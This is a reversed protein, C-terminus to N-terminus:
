ILLPMIILSHRLPFNIRRYSNNKGLWEELHDKQQVWHNRNGKDLFSFYDLLIQRGRQYISSWWKWRNRQGRVLHSRAPNSLAQNSIAQNVGKILKKKMQLFHLITWIKKHLWLLKIRLYKLARLIMKKLKKWQWNKM